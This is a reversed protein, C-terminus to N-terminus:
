DEKNAATAAAKKAPAKKAAAKKAEREALADAKAKAEAERRVVYAAQIPDTSEDLEGRVYGLIRDFTPTALVRPLLDFRDKARTAKGPRTLARFEALEEGDDEGTAHLTARMYMAIDVYGLLDTALAPTVAPGLMSTKDDVRELATFVVHCPLDRIDRLLDRLQNTMVGYDDRDVFDEDILNNDVKSDAYLKQVRKDTAQKRLAQHIDTISDFVVAYWSEPDNTLDSLLRDHLRELTKATIKVGSEPDPWVVLKTTDVGRRQLAVKKLGGEANVVLVRAKSGKPVCNAAFAAGTTKATGERGYALVNLYDITDDLAVFGFEDADRTPPSTKTSAPPTATRSAAAKKAAGRLLKPAVPAAEPAEDGGSTGPLAEQGDPPSEAKPKPPATLRPM